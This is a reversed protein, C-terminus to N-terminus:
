DHPYRGDLVGYIRQRQIVAYPDMKLREDIDLAMMCIEGAIDKQGPLYTGAYAAAGRVDVRPDHAIRLLANSIRRIDHPKRARVAYRLVGYAAYNAVSDSEDLIALLTHDLLIDLEAPLEVHSAQTNLLWQNFLAVVERRAAVSDSGDGGGAQKWIVAVFSPWLDGWHKPDLVPACLSLNEPARKVLELLKERVILEPNAVDSALWCSLFSVYAWKEQAGMRPRELIAGWFADLKGWVGRAAAAMATEQPDVSAEVLHIWAQIPADLAAGNTAEAIAAHIMGLLRTITEDRTEANPALTLALQIADNDWVHSLVENAWVRMANIIPEPLKRQFRRTAQVIKMLAPTFLEDGACEKVDNDNEDYATKILRLTLQALREAANEHLGIWQQIPVAGHNLGRALEFREHWTIDGGVFQELMDLGIARTELQVYGCIASAHAAFNTRRFWYPDNREEKCKTLFAAAWNLDDVRFIKAIQSFIKIRRMRELKRADDRKYEALLAEDRKQAEELTPGSADLVRLIWALTEETKNVDLRLRYTLEESSDYGGFDILPQIYKRQFNPSAFITELDTFLTWYEHPAHNISYTQSSSLRHRRERVLKEITLKDMQERYERARALWATVGEKQELVEIRRHYDDMLTQRDGDIQEDFDLGDWTAEAEGHLAVWADFAEDRETAVTFAQSYAKRADAFDGELMADFAQRMAELYASSREGAPLISATDLRLAKADEAIHAREPEYHNKLALAYCRRIARNAEELFSGDGHEAATRYCFALLDTFLPKREVHLNAEFLAFALWRALNLRQDAHKVLFADIHRSILGHVSFRGRDLVQFGHFSSRADPALNKRRQEEPITLDYFEDGEYTTSVHEWEEDQFTGRLAELWVDYEVYKNTRVIAARDPDNLFDRARNCREEFDTGARVWMRVREIDDKKPTRSALNSERLNHFIESVANISAKAFEINDLNGQSRLADLISATEAIWRRSSNNPQAPFQAAKRALPGLSVSGGTVQALGLQELAEAGVRFQEETWVGNGEKKLVEIAAELPGPLLRLLREAFRQGAVAYLSMEYDKANTGDLVRALRHEITAELLEVLSLVDTTLAAAKLIPLAAINFSVLPHKPDHVIAQLCEVLPRKLYREQWAYGSEQPAPHHVLLHHRTRLSFMEHLARTDISANGITAVILMGKCEVSSASELFPRVAPFPLILHREVGELVGALIWALRSVQNNTFYWPVFHRGHPLSFRKEASLPLRLLWM